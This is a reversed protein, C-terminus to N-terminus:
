PAFKMRKMRPIIAMDRIDDHKMIWALFREMGMGWGATQLYKGGKQEDRIDLYWEYKDQRVQHMTLAERVETAEAHRQGLGLIEGPGLLLDACLAKANNTHPVFAQYFPVSLHDKETLWVAGGFHKILIREGTRTLARGKSHDTPVAYEWAHATNVMEQLSLADALRIRPLHGGNSNALSLLDDMHSTNGAVARIIDVNKELIARTVAIIYREAVEIGDNLTGLMECEAHYFQNLHMHDTDEGRFSCGVHYAGKLGDEIRLVYELTFQMSDALFTDQGSLAVHVPQSDSGPGMPSSISDTTVPVLTYKYGLQSHFFNITAHFLTDQLAFVATYWPSQLAGMSHTSPQQWTKPAVIRNRQVHLERLQKAHVGISKLDSAPPGFQTTLVGQYITEFSTPAAIPTFLQGQSTFQEHVPILKVHAYNIEYGEFFIGCRKVGFAEKLYQAVKYAVKVINKYDEDELGFIDSGLHKRPVLVTFGPTNGYPTLFAVYAENEWIRSQRVEGRIIRAFINQNSAEGDFYNNFPEAIGTTAAIRFRMEELFADAMKPGNKSTLYGPYLANYEEQNHVIATWDKSIGHLPILSLAGSGDCTMGCRHTSLGSNLTASVQRVTHMVKLFTPLSLSMLEGVGRCIVVAHSPTIPYRTLGAIILADQHIVHQSLIHLTTPLISSKLSSATCSATPFVRGSSEVVIHGMSNLALIACASPAKEAKKLIVQAMTESLSETGPLAAVKGAVSHRLIDEGAGSSYVSTLM